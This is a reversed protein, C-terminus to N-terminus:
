CNTGSCTSGDPNVTHGAVPEGTSPNSLGSFGSNTETNESRGAFREDSRILGSEVFTHHHGGGVIHGAQDNGVSCDGDGCGVTDQAMAPSVVFSAVTLLAVKLM